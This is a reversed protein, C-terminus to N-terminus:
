SGISEEIKNEAWWYLIHVWHADNSLKFCPYEQGVAAESLKSAFADIEEYTMSKILVAIAIDKM